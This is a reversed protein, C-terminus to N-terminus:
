QNKQQADDTTKIEYGRDRYFKFRIRAAAKDAEDTGVLEILHRFRSYFLPETSNLNILMDDQHLPADRWHLHVPTLLAMEHNVAVNPLFCSDTAHWLFEGLQNAAEQSELSITIERRKTIGANVMEAITQQKNVVNFYFYVRTM